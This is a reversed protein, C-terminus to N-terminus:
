SGHPSKRLRPSGGSQAESHPYDMVWKEGTKPDEYDVEWTLPNAQLKKLHQKAFDVAEKGELEQAARSPIKSEHPALAGYEQEAEGTTLNKLQPPGGGHMGSRPYTREWYRDDDPDKYLTEWAGWQPSDAIKQLHHAILWHIRECTADGHMQSNEMVWSGTLLTEGPQLKMM